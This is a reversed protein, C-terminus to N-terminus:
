AFGYPEYPGFYLHEVNGMGTVNGPGTIWCAYENGGIRRHTPVHDPGGPPNATAVDFRDQELYEKGRYVGHHQGDHWGGAYGFGQGHAPDGARQLQYTRVEGEADTLTFTGGALRRTGPEYEFAHEARVLDVQRGDEFDLRGEFDLIEGHRDEHMHFFGCHGDVQFPLWIRMARRDFYSDQPEIGHIPVRPGMAMRIGWSHDRFGYWEDIEIPQGDLSANGTIRCQQTYRIVDSVLRGHRYHTAPEEVFPPAQGSYELDFLLGTPNEGLQVRQRWVPEDSFTVSIPGVELEAYRPRLARSARVVRQEGNHVVATFGDMVNNNPHLRLGTAFYLNDAFAGFFYGDNFHSDSTAPIDMPKAHQHFPYEDAATVRKLSM